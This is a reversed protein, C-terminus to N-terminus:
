SLTGSQGGGGNRQRRVDEHLLEELGCVLRNRCLEGVFAVGCMGSGARRGASWTAVVEQPQKSYTFRLVFLSQLFNLVFMM